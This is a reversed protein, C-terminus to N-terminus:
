VWGKKVSYDLTIPEQTDMLRFTPPFNMTKSPMIVPLITRITGFRRITWLQRALGQFFRSGSEIRM